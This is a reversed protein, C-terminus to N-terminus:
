QFLMRQSINNIWHNSSSTSRSSHITFFGSFSFFDNTRFLIATETTCKNVFYFSYLWHRYSPQEGLEDAPQRNSAIPNRDLSIREPFAFILAFFNHLIVDFVVHVMKLTQRFPDSDILHHRHKHNSLYCRDRNDNEMDSSYSYSIHGM